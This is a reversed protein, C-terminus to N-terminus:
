LGMDRLIEDATQATTPSSGQQVPVDFPNIFDPLEPIKNFRDMMDPNDSHYDKMFGLDYLAQSKFRKAVDGLVAIRNEAGVGGSVIELANEYDKDSLGRGEQGRAAAFLYAM